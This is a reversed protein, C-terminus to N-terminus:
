EPTRGTGGCDSCVCPEDVEVDGRLFNREVAGEGDCEPCPPGLWASPKLAVGEFLVSGGKVAASKAANRGYVYVGVAQGNPGLVVHRGGGQSASYRALDHAEQSVGALEALHPNLTSPLDRSWCRLEVGDPAWENKQTM